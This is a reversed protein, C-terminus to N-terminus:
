PGEELTAPEIREAVRAPTDALAPPKSTATELVHERGAERTTSRDRKAMGPSQGDARSKRMCPDPVHAETM